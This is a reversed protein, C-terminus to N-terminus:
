STPAYLRHSPHDTLLLADLNLGECRSGQHIADVLVAMAASWRESADKSYVMRSFQSDRVLSHLASYASDFGDSDGAAAELGAAARAVAENAELAMSAEAMAADVLAFTASARCLTCSADARVLSALLAATDSKKFRGAHSRSGNAYAHGLVASACAQLATPVGPQLWGLLLSHVRDGSEPDDLMSDQAPCALALAKTLAATAHSYNASQEHRHLCTALNCTTKALDALEGKDRAEKIHGLAYSLAKTATLAWQPREWHQNTAAGAEHVVLQAAFLATDGPLAQEHRAACLTLVARRLPEDHPNIYKRLQQLQGKVVDEMVLTVSGLIRVVEGHHEARALSLPTGTVQPGPRLSIPHSAARSM